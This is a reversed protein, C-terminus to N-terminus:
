STFYGTVIIRSTFPVNAGTTNFAAITSGPPAALRTTGLAKITMQQGQFLSPRIISGSPVTAGTIIGGNTQLTLLMKDFGTKSTVTYIGGESGPASGGIHINLGPIMWRNDDVTVTVTTAPQTFDVTTSAKFPYDGANFYRSVTVGTAVTKGVPVGEEKTLKSVFRRANYVTGNVSNGTTVGALFPTAGSQLSMTIANVTKATINYVGAMTGGTTMVYTFDGVSFNTTADVAVGVSGGGAPQTYASTLSASYLNTVEYVGGGKGVRFREYIESIISGATTPLVGAVVPADTFIEVTNGVSPVTFSAATSFSL